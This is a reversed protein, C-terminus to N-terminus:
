YMQKQAHQTCVPKLNGYSYSVVIMHTAKTLCFACMSDVEEPLAVVKSM